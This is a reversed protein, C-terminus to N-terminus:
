SNDYAEVYEKNKSLALPILWQLNAMYQEPYTGAWSAPVRHLTEDTTQYPQPRQSDYPQHTVYFWVQGDKSPHRLVCFLRWDSPDTEYGTEERFERAMACAHDADTPEVKGGVMNLLGKQWEPRRKKILLVYPDYAEPNVVFLGAVYNQM